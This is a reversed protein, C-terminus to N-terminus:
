QLDALIDGLKRVNVKVPNAVPKAQPEREVWVEESLFDAEEAYEEARKLWHRKNLGQSKFYERDSARPLSAKFRGKKIAIQIHVGELLREGVDYGDIVVQEVPGKDSMLRMGLDGKKSFDM